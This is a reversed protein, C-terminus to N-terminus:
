IATCPFVRCPVYGSTSTRNFIRPNFGGPVIERTPPLTIMETEYASCILAVRIDAVMQHVLQEHAPSKSAGCSSLPIWLNQLRSTCSGGIIQSTARRGGDSAVKLRIFHSTAGIEFLIRV